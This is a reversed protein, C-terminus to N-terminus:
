SKQKISRYLRVVGTLLIPSQSLSHDLKPAFLNFVSWSKGTKMTRRITKTPQPAPLVARLPVYFLLLLLLFLLMLLLLMLMCCYLWLWM